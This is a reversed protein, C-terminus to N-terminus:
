ALDFGLGPAQTPFLTGERLLVAGASPDDLLDLHGDLDAYAVNPRALAFHLGAAIALAAEDMCGVMVQLRAARAVANVKLAEAIGGVKMLKVNVMDVFDRRALRFADRLTVLSEDAMIPLHVASTLRGLLAPDGKPTPQEILELKVARTAAVFRLCDEVTFGQNADFRLEVTEGVAERVKIVRAIDADVDKGGKIKLARFGEAVRRRALELTEREPLIGLTVSTKFRDRFGGLIKWLPLGAAKGLLDHLAMDVAAQASPQRELPERLRHLLMAQRLPDSGILAPPVIEQLAHLTGAPTEGTIAADPAACGWGVTGRDTVLKLFVNEVHEITEYAIAYPEALRLRVPWAEVGTIRM